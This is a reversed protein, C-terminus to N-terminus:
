TRGFVTAAEWQNLLIQLYSKQAAVTNGITSKHERYCHCFYLKKSNKLGGRLRISQVLDDELDKVQEYQLTNKVYVLVRAFGHSEWSKPFLISYGPVMLKTVDYQRGVKRLECESLGLIHPSHEKVINKVEFVKNRLSM